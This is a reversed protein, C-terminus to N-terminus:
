LHSEPSLRQELLTALVPFASLTSCLVRVDRVLEDHGAVTRLVEDVSHGRLLMKLTEESADNLSFGLVSTRDPRQGPTDHMSRITEWLWNEPAEDPAIQRLVIDISARDPLNLVLALLMRHRPSRTHKRLNVLSRDRERRSVTERLLAALEADRGALIDILRAPAETAAQSSSSLIIRTASHVDLSRVAAESLAM